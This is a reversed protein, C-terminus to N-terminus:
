AGNGSRAIEHWNDGIKILTLTDQSNDATFDGALQLNGTADKFVVTRASNSARVILINREVGGSITDLDDSAAGAQTEIDHLAQTATVAGNYIYLKKSEGESIKGELVRLRESLNFLEQNLVPISNESFDPINDVSKALDAAFAVGSFSLFAALILTRIM